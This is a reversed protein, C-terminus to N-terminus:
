VKETRMHSVHKKSLLQGVYRPGWGGVLAQLAAVGM